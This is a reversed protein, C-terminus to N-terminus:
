ISGFSVWEMSRRMIPVGILQCFLLDWNIRFIGFHNLPGLKDLNMKCKTWPMLGVLGRMELTVDSRPEPPEATGSAHHGDWLSAQYLWLKAQVFGETGLTEPVKAEGFVHLFCFACWRAVESM